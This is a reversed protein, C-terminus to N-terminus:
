TALVENLERLEKDLDEGLTQRGPRAGSHTQHVAHVHSQTDISRV